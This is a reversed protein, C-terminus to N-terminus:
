SIQIDKKRQFTYYYQYALFQCQIKSVEPFANSEQTKPPFDRQIRRMLHDYYITQGVLVLTTLTYLQVVLFGMSRLNLSSAVSTCIV